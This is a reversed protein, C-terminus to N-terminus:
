FLIAYIIKTEKTENNNVNKRMLFIWFAGEPSPFCTPMDIAMLSPALDYKALCYLVTPITPPIKNKMKHIINRSKLTGIPKKTPATADSNGM